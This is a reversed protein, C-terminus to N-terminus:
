IDGLRELLEFAAENTTTYEGGTETDYWEKVLEIKRLITKLYEDM